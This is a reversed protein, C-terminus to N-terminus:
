HWPESWHSLNQRVEVTGRFQDSRLGGHCLFPRLYDFNILDENLFSVRFKGLLGCVDALSAFYLM